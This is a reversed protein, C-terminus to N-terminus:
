LTKNKIIAICWANRRVIRSIDDSLRPGTIVIVINMKNITPPCHELCQQRSRKSIAVCWANGYVGKALQLAGPM